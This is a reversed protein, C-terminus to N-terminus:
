EGVPGHRTGDNNPQRPPPQTRWGILMALAVAGLMLRAILEQRNVTRGDTLFSEAVDLNFLGAWWFFACLLWPFCWPPARWYLRAMWAALVIKATAAGLLAWAVVVEGQRGMVVGMWDNPPWVSPRDFADTVVAAMIVVYCAGMVATAMVGWREGNMRM